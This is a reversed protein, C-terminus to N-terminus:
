RNIKWVKKNGKKNSSLKGEEELNRLRESATSEACGIIDSINTIRTKETSEVTIIFQEDSYKKNGSKQTSKPELQPIHAVVLTKDDGSYSHFEESDVFQKYESQTEENELSDANYIFNQLRVFFEDRPRSQDEVSWTFRDLGDSFLVISQMGNHEFTFRKKRSVLDPSGTLPVTATSTESTEREVLRHYANEESIGVIGSDGIAVAAHWSSTNCILSLTTHYESLENNREAAVTEINKRARIIARQFAEKVESQSINNIEVDDSELWATLENTAIQTALQSGEASREASGLGDGVAAVVYSEGTEGAWSDQCGINDEKHAPGEVSQGILEPQDFTSLSKQM